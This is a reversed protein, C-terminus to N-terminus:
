CQWPCLQATPSVRADSPFFPRQNPRVAHGGDKGHVILVVHVHVFPLDTAQRHPAIAEQYVGGRGRSSPFSLSYVLICPATVLICQHHPFPPPNIDNDVESENVDYSSYMVNRLTCLHVYYDLTNSFM